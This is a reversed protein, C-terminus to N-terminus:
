QEHGTAIFGHSGSKSEKKAGLMVFVYRNSYISFKM